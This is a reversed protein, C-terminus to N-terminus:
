AAADQELARALQPLSTTLEDAAAADLGELMRTELGDVDRAPRM